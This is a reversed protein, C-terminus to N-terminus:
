GGVLQQRLSQVRRELSTITGSNDYVELKGGCKPCKFDNEVALDFALKQCGDNNCSFFMTGRELELREELRQLLLRKNTSIYDLAREPEMKWYYIYWGSSEDRTRRYSVVRNDYLDYLIRRVLNLRIGTRRAIEEDTLEEGFIIKVVECGHEGAVQNLLEILAPDDPFEPQFKKGEKKEKKKSVKRSVKKDM